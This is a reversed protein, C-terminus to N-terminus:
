SKLIKKYGFVIGIVFLLGSFGDIPLGPPGPPTGPVSGPQPIIQSIGAIPVLLFVIILIIIRGLM